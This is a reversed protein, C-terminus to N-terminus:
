LEGNFAIDLKIIADDIESNFCALAYERNKDTLSIGLLSDNLKSIECLVRCIEATNVVDTEEKTHM